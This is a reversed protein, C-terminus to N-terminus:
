EKDLDVEKNNRMFYGYKKIPITEKKYFFLTSIIFTASLDSFQIKNEFYESKQSKGRARM